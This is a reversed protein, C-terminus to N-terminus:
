VKAQKKQESAKTKSTLGRLDPAEFTIIEFGDKVSVNLLHRSYTPL